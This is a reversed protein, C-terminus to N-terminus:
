SSNKELQSLIWKYIVGILFYIPISYYYHWKLLEYIDLQVLLPECVLAMFVSLIFMVKLFSKWKPFYQYCLMYIIPLILLHIWMIHPFQAIVHYKYRWLRTEYGLEDLTVATIAIMFGYLLIEKIKERDVLKLWITIMVITLLTLMIWPLSLFEYKVWHVYRYYALINELDRVYESSPSIYDLNM